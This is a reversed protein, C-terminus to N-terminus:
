DSARIDDAGPEKCPAIMESLELGLCAAVKAALELSIRYEGREVAALYSGNCGSRKAMERQSWGKAARLVRLRAVFREGAESEIRRQM